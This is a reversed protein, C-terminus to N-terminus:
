SGSNKESPVGNTEDFLESLGALEFADKVAQSLACIRMTSSEERKMSQCALLFQLGATDIETVASGDLQLMDGADLAALLETQLSSVATINFM